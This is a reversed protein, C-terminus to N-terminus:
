QRDKPRMSRLCPSLVRRRVGRAWSLQVQQWLRRAANRMTALGDAMREAVEVANRSREDTMLRWIRRCCACAFLRLKRNSAKGRVFELMPDPDTCNLWEVETM